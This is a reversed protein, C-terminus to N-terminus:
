HAQEDPQEHHGDCEDVEQAPRDDAGDQEGPGCGNQAAPVPHAVDRDPGHESEAAEVREVDPESYRQGCANQVSNESMSLRFQSSCPKSCAAVGMFRSYAHMPTRRPVATPTRGPMPGAM